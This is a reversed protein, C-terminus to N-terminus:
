SLKGMWAPNRPNCTTVPKCRCYPRGCRRSRGDCMFVEVACRKVHRDHADVGRSGVFASLSAMAVGHSPDNFRPVKANQKAVDGGMNRVLHLLGTRAGVGCQKSLFRQFALLTNGDTDDCMASAFQVLKMGMFDTSTQLGMAKRCLTGAVINRKKDLIETLMVSLDAADIKGIARIAEGTKVHEPVAFQPKDPFAPLEAANTTLVRSLDSAVSISTYKGADDDGGRLLEDGGADDDSDGWDVDDDLDDEDTCSDDPKPPTPPLDLLDGPDNGQQLLLLSQSNPSPQDALPKPLKNVLTM